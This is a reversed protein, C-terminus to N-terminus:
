WSGDNGSGLVGAARLKSNCCGHANDSGAQKLHQHGRRAGGPILDCAYCSSPLPLWCCIMTGHLINHPVLVMLSPLFSLKCCGQCGVLSFPHFLTQRDDAHCETSALLSTGASWPSTEPGCLGLWSVQASQLWYLISTESIQLLLASWSYTGRM